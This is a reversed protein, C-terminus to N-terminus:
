KAPPKGATKIQLKVSGKAGGRIEQVYVSYGYFEATGGARLDFRQEQPPTGRNLLVLAVELGHKKEGASGTYDSESISSLGIRLGEFNATTGQRIEIVQGEGLPATDVPKCGAALVFAALM